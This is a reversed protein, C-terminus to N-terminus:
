KLKKAEFVTPTLLILESILKNFDNTTYEHSAVNRLERIRFWVRASSIWGQKESFNLLDILTGRYGPDVSLALSRLLRSVVLDATRAFRSSFSELTELEEESWDLRTLDFGRVKNFSYELHGIAKAVDNKNQALLNM